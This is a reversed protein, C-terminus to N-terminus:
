KSLGVPDTTGFLNKTWLNITKAGDGPTTDGNPYTFVDSASADDRADFLTNSFALNRTVTNPANGASQGQQTVPYDSLHIGVGANQLVSNQSVTTSVVSALFIGDGASKTISNSSITVFGSPTFNPYSPSGDVVIGTGDHDGGAFEYQYFTTGSVSNFVVASYDASFLSIGEDANHTVANGSVSVTGTISIGFHQNDHVTNTGVLSAPPNPSKPSNVAPNYTAANVNLGANANSAAENAIVTLGTGSANLGDYGNGTFQNGSIVAGSTNVVAAGGNVSGTVVNGLLKYNKLMSPVVPYANLGSQGNITIGFFNQRATVGSIEIDSFSVDTQGDAAVYGVNIGSGGQFEFGPANQVTLGRVAVHSARIEICNPYTGPQFPSPGPTGLGTGDILPNGVGQLTVYPTAITVAENYVAGKPNVSVLVTDYPKAANLAKQITPFQQPVLLTGAFAPLASATLGLAALALFTLSRM